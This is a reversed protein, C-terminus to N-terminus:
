FDHMEKNCKHPGRLLLVTLMTINTIDNFTIFM